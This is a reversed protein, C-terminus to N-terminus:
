INSKDNLIKFIGQKVRMNFFSITFSTCRVFGGTNTYNFYVRNESIGTVMCPVSFEDRILMFKTGVTYKETYNLKIRIM